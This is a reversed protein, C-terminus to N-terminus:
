NKSVPFTRRHWALVTRLNSSSTGISNIVCCLKHRSPLIRIHMTTCCFLELRIIAEEALYGLIDGAQLFSTFGRVECDAPNEIPVGMTVAIEASVLHCPGVYMQM